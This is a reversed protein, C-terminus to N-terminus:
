FREAAVPQSSGHLARLLARVAAPIPAIVPAAFRQALGIAAQGLPGGGIIVADAGDDAFCRAVVAALAEELQDPDAALALPDDETLRIGTFLEALGLEGAKATLTGVLGPTVTAIGFRRGGGAAELMSAECIGAVPIDVAGRLDALGPDGFASVIMGAIGGTESVGLAVVGPAAAALEHEQTIMPVGHSATVGAVTFGPGCAAQAIDAMMATTARSTNPNILRIFRM